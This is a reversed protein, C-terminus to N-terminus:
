VKQFAKKPIYGITGNPAQVKIWQNPMSADLLTLKQGAATPEDSLKAFEEGPGKFLYSPTILIGEQAALYYDWGMTSLYLLSLFACIISIKDAVANPKWISFCVSLLVLVTFCVFLQMREPLSFASYFWLLRGMIGSETHNITLQAKKEAAALHQATTEDRPRLGQARTFYLIAMPYEQLQFFTMGINHYLKGNGLHPQHTEELNLLGQLAANFKSKRISQSDTKLAAEYDTSIQELMPTPDEEFLVQFQNFLFIAILAMSFIVFPDSTIRRM